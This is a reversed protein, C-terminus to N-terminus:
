SGLSKRYLSAFGFLGVGLLLISLPEPVSGADIDAREILAHVHRSFAPTLSLSEGGAVVEAHEKFRMSVLFRDVFIQRSAEGGRWPNGESSHFSEHLSWRVGPFDGVMILNGHCPQAALLAGAALVVLICVKKMAGIGWQEVM